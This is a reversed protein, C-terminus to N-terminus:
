IRSLVFRCKGKIKLVKKGAPVFFSDGASFDSKQEGEMIEGSGSIFVIAAFSADDLSVEAEEETEYLIASFYKCEGLLQRTYGKEKEKLGAPVPMNDYAKFDM